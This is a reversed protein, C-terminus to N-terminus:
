ATGRILYEPGNNFLCRATGRILCEPGNKFHVLYFSLRISWFVLFSIVICLNKCGLSLMSQIYWSFVPSLSEGAKLIVYIRCCLTQLLVNFLALFSQNRCGTVAMSVYSCVSFCRFSSFLFPFFFLQISVELPLKAFKCGLLSPCPFMLLSVSERKIGAFFLTM